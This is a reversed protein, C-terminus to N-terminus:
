HYSLTKLIREAPVIRRFIFAATAHIISISSRGHGRMRKQSARGDRGLIMRASTCFGTWLGPPVYELFPLVM